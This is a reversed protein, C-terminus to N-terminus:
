SNSPKAGDSSASENDPCLPVDGDNTDASLNFGLYPSPDFTNEIELENLFQGKGDDRVISFHLHIGTPNGPNGSYNGQFGLLTGADVYVEYTGPPFESVIYSIEGEADAMHTYYSWIQAGPRIPDDPIRIIVTSKWDDLRTLYGAYAAYVPTVGSEEGGFIDLGQHRHGPYFSDGWLFGIYGNTPMLFPADQCRELAQLMWEPHAEPKGLWEWLREVRPTSALLGPIRLRGRLVLNAAVILLVIFLGALFRITLGSLAKRPKFDAKM